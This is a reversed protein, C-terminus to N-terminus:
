QVVEINKMAWPGLYTRVLIDEDAVDLAKQADALQRQYHDRYRAIMQPRTLRGWEAIGVAVGPVSAETMRDSM